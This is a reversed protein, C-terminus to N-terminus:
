ETGSRKRLLEGLDEILRNVAVGVKSATPYAYGIAQRLRFLQKRDADDLGPGSYPSAV